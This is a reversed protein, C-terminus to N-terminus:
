MARGQRREKKWRWEKGICLHPEDKHELKAEFTGLDAAIKEMCDLGLVVATGLRNSQQVIENIANVVTGIDTIDPRARQGVNNFENM